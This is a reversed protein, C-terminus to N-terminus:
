GGFSVHYLDVGHPGHSRENHNGDIAGEDEHKPKPPPVPAAEPEPAVPVADADDHKLLPALEAPINAPDITPLPAKLFCVLAHAKHTADVDALQVRCPMKPDANLLSLLALLLPNM